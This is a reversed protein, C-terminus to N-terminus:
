SDRRGIFWRRAKWLIARPIAAVVDQWFWYWLVAVALRRAESGQMQYDIFEDLHSSFKVRISYAGTGEVFRYDIYEDNPANFHRTKM